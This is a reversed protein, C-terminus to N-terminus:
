TTAEEAKSESMHQRHVVQAIWGFVILGAIDALWDEWSLTRHAFFFQSLEELTVPVFVWVSGELVAFSGLRLKGCKLLLNVLLGMIGILMFHGLKDFYKWSIGLHSLVKPVIGLDATVIVLVLFAAFLVVLKKM